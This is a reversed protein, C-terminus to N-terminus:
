LMKININKLTKIYNQIEYKLKKIINNNYIKKFNRISDIYLLSNEIRQNLKLLQPKYISNM